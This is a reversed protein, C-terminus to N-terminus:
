FLEYSLKDKIKEKSLKIVMNTYGISKKLTRDIDNQTMDTTLFLYIAKKYSETMKKQRRLFKLINRKYIYQNLSSMDLEDKEKQNQELVIDFEDGFYHISKGKLNNNHLAKAKLNGEKYGLYRTIVTKLYMINSITNYKLCYKKYCPYNMISLYVIDLVEDYGIGFSRHLWDSIYTLILPKNNIILEYVKNADVSEM